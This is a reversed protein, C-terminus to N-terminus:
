WCHLMCRRNHIPLNEELFTSVIIFKSIKLQLVTNTMLLLLKKKIIGQRTDYRPFKVARYTLGHTIDSSVFLWLEAPTPSVALIDNSFAIYSLYSLFILTCVLQRGQRSIKQRTNNTPFISLTISKTQPIANTQISPIIRVNNNNLFHPDCTFNFTLVIAFLRNAAYSILLSM